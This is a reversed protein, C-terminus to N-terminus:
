PCPERLVHVAPTTASGSAPVSISVTPLGPIPLPIPSGPIGGAQFSLRWELENAYIRDQFGNACASVAIPDSSYDADADRTLSFTGSIATRVTGAADQANSFYFAIGEEGDLSVEQEHLRQTVWVIMAQAGPVEPSPGLLVGATVNAGEEPAAFRDEVEWLFAEWNESVSDDIAVSVTGVMTLTGGLQEALTPDQVAFGLVGGILQQTEPAIWDCRDRDTRNASWSGNDGAGTYTGSATEAELTGEFQVGGAQGFTIRNGEVRGVVSVRQSARGAAGLYLTGSLTGDAAQELEVCFPGSGMEAASSWSGEWVGSVDALAGDGEDPAGEDEGCSFLAALLGVLVLSGLRYKWGRESIIWFGMRM